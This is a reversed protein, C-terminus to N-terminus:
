WILVPISYMHQTHTQARQSRAEVTLADSQAAMLCDSTSIVTMAAKNQTVEVVCDALQEAAHQQKQTMDWEGNGIDQSAYVM